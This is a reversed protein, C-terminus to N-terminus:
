VYCGGKECRQFNSSEPPKISRKPRVDVAPDKIKVESFTVEKKELNRSENKDEKHKKRLFRRNRWWLRGSEMRVGYRRHKDVFEITGCRDWRKTLKDQVRVETGCNLKPLNRAGENYRDTNVVKKTDTEKTESRKLISPLVPITSRLEHGFVIKAPSLGNVGPTNRLELLGRDIAEQNFSGGDTVKKILFKLKKVASEALGNSQPYHPSSNRWKVGWEKLFTQFEYSAFNTGEDSEFPLPIGYESFWNSVPNKLQFATVGVKNFVHITPWGSFRDVFALFDRKGETFLDAAVCQFPRTPGAGM